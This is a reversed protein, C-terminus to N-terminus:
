NAPAVALAILRRRWRLGATVPVLMAVSTPEPVSGAAPMIPVSGFQQQWALFDVGDSDGDNDADSDGNGPEGFDGHWQALDAGDVNGDLNFDASYIPANVVVLQVLNPAYVVDFLLGAPMDAPQTVATFAGLVSTSAALFPFMNGAAPVYGNNLSIDLAGALSAVGTLTLRDFDSLGTGGLTIALEGAADQQYDLGSAQANPAAALGLELTGQNQILVDVDANDQLQVTSGDPIFLTGGGAFTAGAAIRTNAGELRLTNNLTVTSVAELTFEPVDIEAPEAGANTTLTGAFHMDHTSRVRAGTSMALSSGSAFALEFGNAFLEGQPFLQADGQFGVFADDRLELTGSSAELRGMGNAGDWDNDNAATQVVLTGQSARLRSENIVRAAVLGQGAIGNGGDNSITGGRLEGGVLIVQSAVDTNWPNAVNLIGDADSTGIQNAELIDGNITLTGNDARIHGGPFELDANVTGFGYLAKDDAAFVTAPGNITGGAITNPNALSGGELRLGGPGNANLEGTAGIDLRAAIFGFGSVGITGNVVVDSGALFPAANNITSFNIEGAPDITWPGGGTINVTLTGNSNITVDGDFGDGSDDIATANIILPNQILTTGDDLDVTAVNWATAGSITANGKKLIGEGVYSGFSFSTEGNLNLTSGAEISIDTTNIYSSNGNVVLTSNGGITLAGAMTLTNSLTNITSTAGGAVNVIGTPGVLWPIIAPRSYDLEGGNLNITHAFSADAGAGLDLDLIGGANITTVNSAGEAGDLDFDARDVNLTGNVTLSAGVGLMNFDTGAGITSVSNVIITGSNNIVGGTSTLPADLVLTYDQAALTLTGGNFDVVGGALHAGDGPSALGGITTVVDIVGTSNIWGDAVDFTSGRRLTLTGDFADSLQVNIDLTAQGGVTVAGNGSSVGDLDVRADADTATIQLTSAPEVGPIANGLFGAVLSGENNLLTTAGVPNDTLEIRGNGTIIGGINNTLAGAGVDVIALGSATQSNLILDGGSNITLTGTDLGDVDAGIVTISSGGDSITTAGSVLLEFDTAGNDPSTVVSAGNSIALSSITYAADVLTTDGVAAPLNGISVIVNSPVGNPNWNNGDGWMMTGAGGDWDRSLIVQGPAEAASCVLALAVVVGYELRNM